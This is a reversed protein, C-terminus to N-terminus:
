FVRYFHHFDNVNLNIILTIILRGESKRMIELIILVCKFKLKSNTQNQSKLIPSLPKSDELLCKSSMPIVRFLLNWSSCTKSTSHHMLVILSLPIAMALVNGKLSKDGRSITSITNCKPHDSKLMFISCVRFLLCSFAWWQPLLQNFSVNYALIQLM